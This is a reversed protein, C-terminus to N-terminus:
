PHTSGIWNIELCRRLQMRARHLIVWLNSETIQLLKCVEACEMEEMERLTFVQGMRPPLALLCEQLKQWFEKKELFSAPNDGWDIPGKENFVDWHGKWEGETLIWGERECHITEPDEVTLERGRKRICDVIKHKLIGILWTRETSGGAFRDQSKLGALFTEQVVDEAAAENRLRAFAFNYLYDGHEDLWRQPDILQAQTVPAKELVQHQNLAM